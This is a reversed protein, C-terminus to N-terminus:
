ARLALIAKWEASTVPSISLRGETFLRMRRLAPVARLEERTIPPVVAREAKVEVAVWRPLARTAKPDFYDGGRVFQTPDAYASKVIVMMGAIVLPDASSHYFFARDGKAMTRMFNRSTYNRVGEWSTTRDRQLDQFSYTEPESKMLWFAM